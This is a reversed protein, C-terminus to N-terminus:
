RPLDDQAFFYPLHLALSKKEELDDTAITSDKFGGTIQM